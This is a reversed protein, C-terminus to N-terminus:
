PRYVKARNRVSLLSFLRGLATAVERWFVGEGLSDPKSEDEARLDARHGNFRERLKNKTKGVYVIKSCTRCHMGYIVGITQCNIEKELRMKNGDKDTVEKTKQMFKCLKCDKGCPGSGGEEERARANVILDGLNKGRRLSM